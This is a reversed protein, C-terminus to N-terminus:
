DKNCIFTQYNETVGTWTFLENQYYEFANDYISTAMIVPYMISRPTNDGFSETRHPRYLVCHGLEHHALLNKQSDSVNNWFNLSFTVRRLGVGTECLGIVGSGYQSLDGLKIELDPNSTSMSKNGQILGDAIFNEVYRKFQKDGKYFALPPKPEVPTPTPMIPPPVRTPAPWPVPAVPAPSAVPAPPLTAVPPVPKPAVPPLTPPAPPLPPPAPPLVPPLPSVVPAPSVPPLVVVTSIPLASPQTAPFVSPGKGPPAHCPPELCPLEPVNPPPPFTDPPLPCPPKPEPTPPMPEPSSPPVPPPTPAPVETPTPSPTPVVPPDSIKHNCGCCFCWLCLSIILLNKM